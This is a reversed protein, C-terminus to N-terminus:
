KDKKNKQVAKKTAADEPQPANDKAPELEKLKQELMSWIEPKEFGYRWSAVGALGYTKILEMKHELSTKNEQWFSYPVDDEMYSYYTVREKELWRCRFTEDKGKEEILKESGPMTLTKAYFRKKDKDYHWLRMYFPIGLVVKHPPVEELTNKIGREVWDYGATPGAEPSAGSYQDYAMVMMYDLHEALAKRDFCLSWNPSGKPVTVDMSLILKDQQTARRIQKVFETIRDKDAEYIHEFDLNIGDFKHKQYQQRLQEIVFRRANEDDLLKKTRDPNFGNTILPWVQYGRAHAREVYDDISKDKIKGYENEIEYWCPSVVNLGPVKDLSSLDVEPRHDHQWVLNIKYPLAPKPPPAPPEEKTCASSSLCGLALLAILMHSLIKKM